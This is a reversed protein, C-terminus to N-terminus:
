FGGCLLLFSAIKCGIVRYIILFRGYRLDARDLTMDSRAAQSYGCCCFSGSDGLLVFWKVDSEM